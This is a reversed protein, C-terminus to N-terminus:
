RKLTSCSFLHLVSAKACVVMVDEKGNVSVKETKCFKPVSDTAMLHFVHGQIREYLRVMTQLQSASLAKAAMAPHLTAGM